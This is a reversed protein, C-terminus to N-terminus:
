ACVHQYDLPGSICDENTKSVNTLKYLYPKERQRRREQQVYTAIGKIFQQPAQAECGGTEFFFMSGIAGLPSVNALQLELKEM